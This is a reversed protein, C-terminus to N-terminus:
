PMSSWKNKFSTLNLKCIRPEFIRYRKMMRFGKM